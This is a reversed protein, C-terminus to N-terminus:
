RPFFASKRVIQPNPRTLETARFESWLIGKEQARESSIFTFAPRTVSSAFFFSLFPNTPRRPHLCSSVGSWGSSLWQLRLSFYFPHPSPYFTSFFLFSLSLSSGRVLKQTLAENCCRYKNDTEWFTKYLCLSTRGSRARLKQMFIWHLINLVFFFYYAPFPHPLPPKLSFSFCVYM